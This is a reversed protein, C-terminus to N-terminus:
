ADEERRRNNPAISVKIKPKGIKEIWLSQNLRSYNM